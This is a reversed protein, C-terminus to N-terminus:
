SIIKNVNNIEQQIIFNFRNLDQMAQKAWTYDTESFDYWVMDFSNENIYVNIQKNFDNIWAKYFIKYLKDFDMTFKKIYACVDSNLMDFPNKCLLDFNNETKITIFNKQEVTLKMENLLFGEINKPMDNFNWDMTSTSVYFVKPKFYILAIKTIDSDM